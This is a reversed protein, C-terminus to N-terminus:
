ESEYSLHFKYAVPLHKPIVFPFGDDTTLLVRFSSLTHSAITVSTGDLHNMDGVIRKGRQVDSPIMIRAIINRMGMNKQNSIAKSEVSGVSVDIYMFEFNSYDGVVEVSQSGSDLPFSIDKYFDMFNYSQLEQRSPIIGISFGDYQDIQNSQLLGSLTYETTTNEDSIELDPLNLCKMSLDTSLGPNYTSKIQFILGGIIM